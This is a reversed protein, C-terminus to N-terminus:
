RPIPPLPGAGRKGIVEHNQFAPVQDLASGRVRSAAVVERPLENVISTVEPGDFPHGLILSITGTRGDSKENEGICRTPDHDVECIVRSTTPSQEGYGEVVVLNRGRVLPIYKEFIVFTERHCSEPNYEPV